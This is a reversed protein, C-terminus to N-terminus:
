LPAYTKPDAYLVALKAGPVLQQKVSEAEGVQESGRLLEQSDPRCFEYIVYRFGQGPIVQVVTGLLVHTAQESLKQLRKQTSTMLHGAWVLSAMFGLFFVTVFPEFPERKYELTSWSPKFKFYAIEESAGEKSWGSSWRSGPDESKEYTVGDVTYQYKLEHQGDTGVLELRETKMEQVLDSDWAWIYLSLLTTLVFILGFLGKMVQGAYFWIRSSGKVALETEKGELFTRHAGHRLILQVDTPLECKYDKLSRRTQTM